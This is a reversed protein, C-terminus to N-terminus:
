SSLLNATSILKCDFLRSFQTKLKEKVEEMDPKLGLEKELSTVAKDTIGCPIINEFYNLETSVNFAFGHM